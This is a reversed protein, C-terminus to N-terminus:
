SNNEKAEDILRQKELLNICSVKTVILPICLVGVAGAFIMLGGLFRYGFNTEPALFFYVIFIIASVLSGWVFLRTARKFNKEKNELKNKVGKNM